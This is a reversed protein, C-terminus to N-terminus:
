KKILKLNKVIKENERITVFYIGAEGEITMRVFEGANAAIVKTSILQGVVNHIEVYYSGSNVFQVNVENEFPNPYANYDGVENDAIGVGDNVKVYQFTEKDSGWGNTLTLTADYLGGKGYSAKITGATSTNQSAETIKADLGLKWSPLTEIRYNEGTIFPAGPGYAVPQTVYDNQGEGVIKVAVVGAKLNTEKGTSLIFNEENAESEFDWYGSLGEPIETQHKMSNRVEEANLGKKYFQFEDLYGDLGARGAANGGIMIKNSNKWTYINTILESQGILNGNAYLSIQRGNGVWDIIFAIHTWQGPLFIFDKAHLPTGENQVKRLSIGFTGDTNITSWVYGWDSAPWKDEKTRINLLQTGGSQHNFRTPKFWFCISFASQNNLNLQAADLAFAQEPLKLARSVSGDADRGLYSYTVEAGQEVEIQTSSNNAKLEKIEPLAGVEAGSVQIFGRYIETTDKGSKLFTLALDYLGVEELSTTISKGGLSTSVVSNDLSKRVEWIKADSHNPDIYQATFEEGSKIVTKDIEIGEVVSNAPIDQYDTWSIGSETKGDISVASVGMRARSGSEMDRPATVVYAAWSTTATCMVPNEGEQQIYIKYYWANVDENYVPEGPTNISSSMKYYLKFDVGRYNSALLKSGTIIPESPTIANDGRTLSIEGILIKFDASTDIFKLGMLAMTKNALKLSTPSVGVKVEYEMWDTDATVAKSRPGIETGEEGEATCSWAISGSGSVVKYRVLLKDGTILSYKTKFLHLYETETQGSVSLCSGGFWADDWTFEAKLGNAPVDSENRGMFTSTFWWRWTPLYDQMGINYWENPFNQEGKINFFRGNGLNFYTVFPEKSLDDSQLPSRATIFSSFGHFDTTLTSHALKNKIPPTNVPNYSSGTFVNESCLQYTKQMLVPDAGLEGRNEFVMNMNHAGWLGVSIDYSKLAVWDAFSRGQFDMGGYVDFSSRGEFSRATSQSTGLGSAGGSWDYNMFYANSTPHGNYHFWDKNTSNLDDGGGLNGSNNMLSYWANSYTPWKQADKHEFAGSLLRKLNDTGISSNIYFESNYGIGDIGYYRLFKLLKEPGGDIMAKMTSGHGGDTASVTAAWPVAALTSTTVGNKHCIDSFAGPMRIMPATWNGYIDVYSWMSFAESDFFYTPLANWGDAGVPCWWLLKRASNMTPDVQTNANTFRAKPKVRSIYFQEDDKGKGNPYLAEGPSWARYADYFPIDGDGSVYRPHTPSQAFTVSAALVCSGFFLHRLKGM